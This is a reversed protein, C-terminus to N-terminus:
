LDITRNSENFEFTNVGRLYQTWLSHIIMNFVDYKVPKEHWLFHKRAFKLNQQISEYRKQPIDELVQKLVPVDKEAVRIALNNWDLVDAFPFVYSDSIVVPVCDYYIAEVLRPSNVDFGRPCLCYKSMKLFQFYSINNQLSGPHSQGVAFIKMNPDTENGWHKLIEPRLTGHMQGAFFAVFPRESSAPGGLNQYPRADPSVKCSKIMIQPMSVDRLVNFGRSKDTNCIVKIVNNQLQKNGKATSLAWDHCSVFFHDRGQTKNWYPHMTAITRVYSAIERKILKTNRSRPNYLHNVMQKLSYPLFFMHAKSSDNTIFMHGQEMIDIFFGESAYIGTRHGQHVLPRFGEKYLYIRFTKEMTAYSRRFASVNLYIEPYLDVNFEGDLKLSGGNISKNSVEKFENDKFESPNEHSSIDQSDRSKETPPLINNVLSRPELFEIKIPKLPPVAPTIGEIKSACKLNLKVDRLWSNCDVSSLPSTYARNM